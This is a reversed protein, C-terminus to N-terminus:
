TTTEDKKKEIKYLKVVEDIGVERIKDHIFRCFNTSGDPAQKKYYECYSKCKQENQTPDCMMPADCRKIEEFRDLLKKEVVDVTSDDFDVTFPGGDRIFFITALVNEFKNPYMKRIAYNYLMLQFDKRLYEFDKIQNTGWDKRQGSKWDVIEYTGPVPENVIDIIGRIELEDNIRLTFDGESAVVNLKRPDFLGGRNDLPIWTWEGCDTRDTKNWKEESAASTFAYAKELIANVVDVGTRVHGYEITCDYKYVYSNSRRKNIEDVEENTLTTERNFEEDTFHLEGIDEDVIRYEGTEKKALTLLALCEMVKHVVTGKDAKKNAPSRIKLGYGIFYQMQCFDWKSYSSPSISNIEM